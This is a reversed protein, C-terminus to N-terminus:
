VCYITVIECPSAQFAVNLTSILVPGLMCYWIFTTIIVWYEPSVITLKFFTKFFFFNKFGICFLDWMFLVSELIVTYISFPDKFYYGGKNLESIFDDHQIRTAPSTLHTSALFLRDFDKLTAPLNGLNYVERKLSSYKSGFCLYVFFCTLLNVLIGKVLVLRTLHVIYIVLFFFLLFFFFRKGEKKTRKQQKQYFFVSWRM